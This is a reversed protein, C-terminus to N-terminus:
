TDSVDCQFRSPEHIMTHSKLQKSTKFFRDCNPYACFHLTGAYHDFSHTRLEDRTIFVTQCEKCKFAAEDRNKHVNTEHGNRRVANPFTRICFRCKYREQAQLSLILKRNDTEHQQYLHVQFQEFKNFELGCYQCFFREFHGALHGLINEKKCYIRQCAACHYKRHKKDIHRQLYGKGPESKGCFDCIFQSTIM